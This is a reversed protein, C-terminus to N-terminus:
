INAIRVAASQQERWTQQDSQQLQISSLKSFSGDIQAIKPEVAAHERFLFYGQEVAELSPTYLRIEMRSKRKDEASGHPIFQFVILIFCYFLRARSLFLQISIRRLRAKLRDVFVEIDQIIIKFLVLQGSLVAPKHLWMEAYIRM